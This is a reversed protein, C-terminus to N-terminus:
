RVPEKMKREDDKSVTIKRDEQKRETKTVRGKEEEEKGGLSM